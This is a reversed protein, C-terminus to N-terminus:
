AVVRDELLGLGFGFYYDLIYRFHNVPTISPYLGDNGGEPLHFASLIYHKLIGPKDRGHDGTIVIIPNRESSQLIGDIMNLVLSNVYIVQGIYPEPVSPDHNRTFAVTPTDAEIFNGHQDFTAPGHPKNIHAFVFKPSDVDIPDALFEFM